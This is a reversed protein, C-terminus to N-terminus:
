GLTVRALLFVARFNADEPQTIDTCNRRPTERTISTFDNTDVRERGLDVQDITSLRGDNLCVDTLDDCDGGLSAPQELLSGTWAIRSVSSDKTQTPVGLWAL